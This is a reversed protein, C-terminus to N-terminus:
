NIIQALTLAYSYQYTNQNMGPLIDFDRGLNLLAEYECGKFYSFYNDYAYNHYSLTGYSDYYLGTGNEPWEVVNITMDCRDINFQSEM